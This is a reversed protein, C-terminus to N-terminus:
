PLITMRAQLGPRLLTARNEIDAWIRIQGNVPNVEPSVFTVKGSFRESRGRGLAVVLEVPRGVLAETLDTALLQGEARLRDMRVMRLVTQGPEVWEGRFRRREVVLGSIPATIQRRQVDHRASLVQNDKADMTLQADDYDFRAQALELEARDLTLRLRDLETKSVSKPVLKYSDLARQLELRAVAVTKEALQQKLDNSAIKRARESEIRAHEHALRSGTDDVRGLLQGEKVTEGERVSLEELIGAERAPVELEEVLTLFVSAVRIPAVSRDHDVAIATAFAIAFFVNM